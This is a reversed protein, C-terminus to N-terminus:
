GEHFRHCHGCYKEQIDLPHYSANGCVLCRISRPVGPEERIEYGSSAELEVRGDECKISGKFNVIQLCFKAM